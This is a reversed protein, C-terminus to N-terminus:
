LAVLSRYRHLTVKSHCARWCVAAGIDHLCEAVSRIVCPLVSQLINVESSSRAFIELPERCALECGRCRLKGDSSRQGCDQCLCKCEDGIQQSRQQSLLNLVEHSLARLPSDQEDIIQRSSHRLAVNASARCLHHNSACTALHASSAAAPRLISTQCAGPRTLIPPIPANQNQFQFFLSARIHIFPFLM